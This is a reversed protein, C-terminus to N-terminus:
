VPQFRNVTECVLEVAEVTLFPHLPLTLVERVVQETNPLAGAAMSAYAAQQHIAAPYHIAAPVGADLLHQLLLDRRDSRVVHLHWAHDCGPRVRPAAVVRSGSLRESYIGALARRKVLQAPLGPLKARLFAAQLEDLRSNVGPEDSIQRARWGYQRLLRVRAAVEDDDTLVAGGDGLAGLNKTPYFSFAAARGLTGVSRDQWAAGHAQACDELLLIGHADAVTQLAAWDAPQGYLHVVLAAKVEKGAPSKMLADLAQSCLTFHDAECDALVVGAGARLVAAASAGATLSPVVVKSGAGINLARLMLEIADTGSAVGVAHRSGIFAAFEMEFATVEDGLIYRGSDFVREAAASLVERHCRM